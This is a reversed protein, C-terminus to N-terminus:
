GSIQRFILEHILNNDFFLIFQVYLQHLLQVYFLHLTNLNAKWNWWLPLSGFEEKSSYILSLSCLRLFRSGQIAERGEGDNEDRHHSQSLSDSSSDIDSTKLTSPFYSCFNISRFLARCIHDELYCTTM